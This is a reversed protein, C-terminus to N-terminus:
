PFRKFRTNLLGWEIFVFLLSLVLLYNWLEYDVMGTKDEELISDFAEEIEATTAAQYLDGRTQNTIRLLTDENYTASINYYEPLYGIPGTESGIGIAHVKVNKGSAYDIAQDISDELFTGATNSGDTLLIISKGDNSIELLNSAAIIAGSIDTGGARMLEIDDISLQVKTKDEELPLEVFTTGAFRIVGAKNNPGLNDIFRSATDKAVTIRNPSYDKASMSASADIAIIYDANSVDGEIWFTPKALAMILFLFVLMRLSLTFYNKTLIKDKSVRKLARFNAFRLANFQNYRLLAFHSLVLIPVIALLWLYYPDEFRIFM